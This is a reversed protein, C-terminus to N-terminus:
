ARGAPQRDPHPREPARRETANVDDFDWRIPEYRDILEDNKRFYPLYESAHPSSETHFYGFANMIETRVREGGWVGRDSPTRSWTSRREDSRPDRICIRTTRAPVRHVVGPSQDRRVPIVVDDYAVDVIDALMRSTGQVSHCLGM